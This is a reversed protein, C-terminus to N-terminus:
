ASHEFISSETFDAKTENKTAFRSRQVRTHGDSEYEPTHETSQTRWLNVRPLWAMGIYM